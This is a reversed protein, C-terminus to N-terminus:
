RAGHGGEEEAEAAQKLTDLDGDRTVGIGALVM